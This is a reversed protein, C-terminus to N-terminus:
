REGEHIQIVVTIEVQEKRVMVVGPQRREVVSGPM